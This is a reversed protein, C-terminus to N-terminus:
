GTYRPDALMQHVRALRVNLLFESFTTGEGEFLRQVYRPTVRHRAAVANVNLGCHGFNDAVTRKIAQLRAMRLGRGEAVFAADRTAGLVLAFLDRVHVAAVKALDANISTQGEELFRLYGLLYQLAEVDAPIRRLMAGDPNPVLPALEARRIHVCRYHATSPTACTGAEAANMVVAEGASFAIERGRQAATGDSTSVFFGVDDNGDAVLAPTRSFRVPSIISTVLDLNPVSHVILDAHFPVDPAPEIETHFVSRGFLERWVPIRDRAPLDDTSFRVPKFDAAQTEM